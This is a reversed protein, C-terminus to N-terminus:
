NLQQERLVRLIQESESSIINASRVPCRSARPNVTRRVQRGVQWEMTNTSTSMTSNHRAAPSAAYGGREKEGRSESKCTIVRSGHQRGEPLKGHM